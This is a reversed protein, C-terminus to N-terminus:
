RLTFTAADFTIGKEVNRVTSRKVLKDDSYVEISAPFWNGGISSGWGLYRTDTRKPKGDDGKGITVVRVVLLTDKDLWVQPKDTEWPKSGILYAVRGDFRAFSVVEPNVGIVRMDHLWREAARDDDLPPAATVQDILFDVPSRQAKDPQGASKIIMKDDVRLEVRQGEPLDIEKRVDGPAQFMWRETVPVGKSAGTIEYAQTEMDVRVTHTAREFQKEMAKQVLVHAPPRYALASSSAALAGVVVM